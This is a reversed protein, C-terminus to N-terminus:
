EKAETTLSVKGRLLYRFKMPTYQTSTFEYGM